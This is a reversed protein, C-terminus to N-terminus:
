KADLCPSISFSPFFVRLKLLAEAPTQTSLPFSKGFGSREHTCSYSVTTNSTFQIRLESDLATLIVRFLFPFIQLPFFLAMINIKTKYALTRCVKQYSPLFIEFFTALM